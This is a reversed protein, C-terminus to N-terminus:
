IDMTNFWNWASNDCKCPDVNFFFLIMGWSWCLQFHPISTEGQRDTQGDTQGNTSLQGNQIEVINELDTEIKCMKNVLKLIHTTPQTEKLCELILIKAIEKLM